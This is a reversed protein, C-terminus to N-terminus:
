EPGWSRDIQIIFFTSYYATTLESMVRSFDPDCRAVDHQSANGGFNLNRIKRALVVTPKEPKAM